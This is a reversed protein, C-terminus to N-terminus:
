VVHGSALDVIECKFSKAMFQLLENEKQWDHGTDKSGGANFSTHVTSTYGDIGPDLLKDFGAITLTKPRTLELAIIIAALGTSVNPHKAGIGRFVENWPECESLAVVVRGSVKSELWQILREDYNGRKPYCWYESAKIKPLHHVVETSSCMVDTRSGYDEKEKLLDSCNKLRVVRQDDIKKGLKAGKLSPGHGVIIM